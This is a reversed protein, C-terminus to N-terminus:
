ETPNGIFGVEYRFLDEYPPSVMVRTIKSANAVAV